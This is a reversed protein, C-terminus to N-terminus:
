LYGCFKYVTVKVAAIYEPIYMNNLLHVFARADNTQTTASRILILTLAAGAKALPRARM